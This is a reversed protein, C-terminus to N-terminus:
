PDNHRVSNHYKNNYAIINCQPLQFRTRVKSHLKFQNPRYVPIRHLPYYTHQMVTKKKRKNLNGNTFIFITLLQDQWDYMDSERSKPQLGYNETKVNKNQKYNVNTLFSWFCHKWSAFMDAEGDVSRTIFPPDQTKMRFLLASFVGNMTKLFTAHRFVTMTFKLWFLNSWPNEGRLEFWTSLTCFWAEAVRRHGRWKRVMMMMTMTMQLWHNEVLMCVLVGWSSNKSHNTSIIIHPVEHFLSFWTLM